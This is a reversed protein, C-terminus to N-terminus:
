VFSILNLASALLVVKSIEEKLDHIVRFKAKVDVEKFFEFIYDGSFVKSNKPLHGFKDIKELSIEKLSNKPQLKHHNDLFWLFADAAAILKALTERCSKM